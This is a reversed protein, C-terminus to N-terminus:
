RLHQSEGAAQLLGAIRPLDSDVFRHQEVQQRLEGVFFSGLGNGQLELIRRLAALRGLSEDFKAGDGTV